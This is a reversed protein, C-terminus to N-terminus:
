TQINKKKNYSVYKSIKQKQMNSTYLKANKEHWVKNLNERLKKSQKM